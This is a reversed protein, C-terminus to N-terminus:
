LKTHRYKEYRLYHQLSILMLRISLRNIRFKGTNAERLINKWILSNSKPLPLKIKAYNHLVMIRYFEKKYTIRLHPVIGNKIIQWKAFYPFALADITDIAGSKIRFKVNRPDQGLLYKGYIATDFVPTELTNSPMGTKIPITKLAKFYGAKYGLNFSYIDHWYFDPYMDKNSLCTYLYKMFNLYLTPNAIILITPVTSNANDFCTYNSEYNKMIEDFDKEGFLIIADSELHIFNGSKTIKIFEEIAFLRLCSNLWYRDRHGSKEPYYKQLLEEVVKFKERNVRLTKVKMKNLFKSDVFHDTVYYIESTPNSARTHKISNKLYYPPKRGLDVYLYKAVM